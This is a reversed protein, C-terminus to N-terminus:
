HTTPNVPNPIIKHLHVTQTLAMYLVQISERLMPGKDQNRFQETITRKRYTVPNQTHYLVDM